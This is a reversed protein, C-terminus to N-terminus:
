KLESIPRTATHIVTTAPPSHTMNVKLKEENRLKQHLLAMDEKQECVFSVLDKHSICNEFYKANNSDMVNLQFYM